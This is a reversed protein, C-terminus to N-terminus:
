LFFSIAAGMQSCFSLLNISIFILLFFFFITDSLKVEVTVTRQNITGLIVNKM